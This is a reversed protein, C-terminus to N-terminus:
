GSARMESTFGNTGSYEWSGAASRHQHVVSEYQVYDHYANSPLGAITIRSGNLGPLLKMEVTSEPVSFHVSEATRDITLPVRERVQALRDFGAFAVPLLGDLAALQRATLADSIYLRTWHGMSFTVVFAVGSLDAGEFDGEIIQILRNGFCGRDTPRGFNCPCPIACSCCEAVAARFSWRRREVGSPRRFGSIPLYALGLLLKGFRRRNM